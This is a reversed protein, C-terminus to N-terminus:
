KARLEEMFRIRGAAAQAGCPAMKPKRTSSCNDKPILTWGGEFFYEQERGLWIVEGEEGDQGV